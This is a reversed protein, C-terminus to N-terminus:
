LKIKSKASHPLLPICKHFTSSLSFASTDPWASYETVDATLSTNSAKMEEEDIDASLEVM